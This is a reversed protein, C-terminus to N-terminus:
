SVYWWMVASLVLGLYGLGIGINCLGVGRHQHTRKSKVHGIIGMVIAAVGMIVGLALTWCDVVAIVGFMVSLLGLPSRARIWQGVRDARQEAARSPQGFIAM